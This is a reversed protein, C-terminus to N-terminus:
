SNFRQDGAISFLQTDLSISFALGFKGYICDLAHTREEKLRLHVTRLSSCGHLTNAAHMTKGHLLRAAKNSIAGKM